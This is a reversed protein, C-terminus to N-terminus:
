AAERARENLARLEVIAEEADALRKRLDKIVWEQAGLLYHAREILTQKEALRAEYRAIVDDSNM